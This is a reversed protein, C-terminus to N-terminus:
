PSPDLTYPKPYSEPNLADPRSNLFGVQELVAEIGEKSALGGVVSGLVGADLLGRGDGSEGGSVAM